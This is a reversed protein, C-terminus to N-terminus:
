IQFETLTVYKLLIISQIIYIWQTITLILLHYKQLAKFNYFHKRKHSTKLHSIAHINCRKEYRIFWSNSIEFLVEKLFCFNFTCITLISVLMLFFTNVQSFSKINSNKELRKEKVYMKCLWSKVAVIQETKEKVHFM